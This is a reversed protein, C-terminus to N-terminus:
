QRPDDFCLLHRQLLVKGGKGTTQHGSWEQGNKSATKDDRRRNNRKSNVASNDEGHWFIKLHPWVMKTETEKGRNPAYIFSRGSWTLDLTPSKQLHYLLIYRAILESPSDFVRCFSM